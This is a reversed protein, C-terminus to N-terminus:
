ATRTTRAYGGGLLEKAIEAITWERGSRLQFDILCANHVVLLNITTTKGSKIWWESVRNRCIPCTYEM